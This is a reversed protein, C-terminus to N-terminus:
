KEQKEETEEEPKEEKKEERHKGSERLGIETHNIIRKINIRHKFVILASVAVLIAIIRIDAETYIYYAPVFVMVSLTAIVIYDTVYTIVIVMVAVVLCLKWNLMAVMGIYSAFGKGGRFGLYFPFIHGVISMAGALVPIVENGPFLYGCLIMAIITKFMDCLGTLVGMGWGLNVKINSAGANMSGRERIDFGKARGIFYATSFSGLLYSIISTYLYEM